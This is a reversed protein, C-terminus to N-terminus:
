DNDIRYFEGKLLQSMGTQNFTVTIKECVYRHGCIHFEARPDPVCDDIWSFNYKINPDIHPIHNQINSSLADTLRMDFDPGQVITWDDYISIRDIQPCPSPGGSRNVGDWYAIYILDYFEGKDSDQNGIAMFHAAGPQLMVDEDSSGSTNNYEGPALFIMPGRDDTDSMRTSQIWAPVFDLEETDINDSEPMGSGFINVPQLVYKTYYVDKTITNGFVDSGLTHTIKETGIARHVFHTDVDKAYLIRGITIDYGPTLGPRTPEDSGIYVIEGYSITKNERADFSIHQKNKEILDQLTDYEVQKYRPFKEFYWDCSLYRWLPNKNDRYSLRKAGIYDCNSAGSDNSVTVSFSDIINNLKVKETAILKERVFSFEVSKLRHDFDFEAGMFTELKEFFEMVTWNPLVSAYENKGWSAPLTNCILLYRLNSNEWDSLDCSYGIANLIKRVIVILYPMWSLSTVEKDWSPVGNNFDVWNNPVDAADNNVWPIAVEDRTAKWALTPTISNANSISPRGLDLENIYKEDLPNEDVSECRGETFQCSIEAESISTVILSGSFTNRGDVILCDLSTITKDYDKRNLHGFIAINEPCDLLPFIINLTYTDRGLFLRNEAVFEFSSGDKIVAERGNVIIKM